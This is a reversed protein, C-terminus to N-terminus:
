AEDDPPFKVKSQGGAAEGIRLLLFVGDEIAARPLRMWWQTGDATANTFHVLPTEGHHPMSPLLSVKDAGHQTELEVLEALEILSYFGGSDLGPSRLDDLGGRAAMTKAADPGRA